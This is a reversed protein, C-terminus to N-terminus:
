IERKGAAAFRIKLSPNSVSFTKCTLANELGAESLLPDKGGLM